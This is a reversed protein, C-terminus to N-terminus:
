TLLKVCMQLFRFALRYGGSSIELNGSDFYWTLRWAAV